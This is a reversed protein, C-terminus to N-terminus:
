GTRQGALLALEPFFFRIEQAATEPSDSGHVTNAELSEALDKRITGPAAQAPNTAGMLERNKAIANYGELVAVVIPGSCMFETLSGFFPRNRHVAYFAEAEAKSLRMLKLARVVLGGQEFRRLVEGILNRRVGDPKIISLTQEVATPM